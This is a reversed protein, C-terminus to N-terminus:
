KDTCIILFYDLLKSNLRKLRECFNHVFHIYGYNTITFYISDLENNYIHPM